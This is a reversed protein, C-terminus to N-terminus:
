IQSIQPYTYSGAIPSSTESIAGPLDNSSNGSSQSHGSQPAGLSSKESCSQVGTPSGIGATVLLGVIQIKGNFPHQPYSLGQSDIMRILMILNAKEPLVVDKLTKASWPRFSVAEPLVPRPMPM